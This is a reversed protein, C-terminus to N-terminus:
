SALRTGSRKVGTSCARERLYLSMAGLTLPGSGGGRGLHDAVHDDVAAVDKIEGDLSVLKSVLNILYVVAAIATAVVDAM